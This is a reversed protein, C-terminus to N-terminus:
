SKVILILVTLYQNPPTKKHVFAKLPLSAPPFGSQISINKSYIGIIVDSLAIVCIPCLLDSHFM